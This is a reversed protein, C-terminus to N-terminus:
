LLGGGGGKESVGWIIVEAAADVCASLALVAYGM